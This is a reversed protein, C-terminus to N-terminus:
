EPPAVGVCADGELHHLLEVVRLLVEEGAEIVEREERWIVRGVGDENPNRGAAGLARLDAYAHLPALEARERFAGIEDADAEGELLPAEGRGLEDRDADRTSGRRSPTAGWSSEKMSSRMGGRRCEARAVI